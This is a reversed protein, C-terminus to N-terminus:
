KRPPFDNKEALVGVSRKSTVQFDLPVLQSNSRLQKEPKMIACQVAADKPLNKKGVIILLLKEM